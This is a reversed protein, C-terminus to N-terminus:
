GAAYSAALRRLGEDITVLPAYGLERRIASIDYWQSHCLQVAGFRTILPEDDRGLLRYLAELTAGAFYALGPPVVRTPAKSGAAELMRGAMTWLGIPAGDSVFYVRGSGIRGAELAADALLHAHVCNDVYVTDVLPDARGIRRLKGAKARALLRPLLHRDGPGWIFHPRIAVTRVGEAARVLKEGEAKTRPYDALWKSAYPLSEDGGELDGEGVVVSPTSTHVLRAGANSCAQLVNRTGEVNIAEYERPDGFGGAKAATHFVVQVGETARRVSAADRVDGRVAEAGVAALEPYDGRALVRVEDGRARLARVLASGLFGGGGTM